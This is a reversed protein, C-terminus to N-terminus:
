ADHIRENSKLSDLLFFYYFSGVALVLLSLIWLWYGMNFSEISATRGNEAALIETWNFFSLGLIFSILSFIRSVKQVKVLYMLGLLYLPNALWVLWEFLGGGLIALGGMILLSFSSHTKQGDFDNYTIADFSFSVCYIVISIALIYVKFRHLREEKPVIKIMM